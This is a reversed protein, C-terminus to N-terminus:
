RSGSPFRRSLLKEVKERLLKVKIPKSHFDDVNLKRLDEETRPTFDMGTERSISTLMLIPINEYRPHSKIRKSLTMGADLDEMMLDLIVLDPTENEVMEWGQKGSSASLVRYGQGELSLKGIDIFDPDDDVILIKPATKM